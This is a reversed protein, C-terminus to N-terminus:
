APMIIVLGNKGRLTLALNFRNFNFYRKKYIQLIIRELDTNKINIVNTIQFSSKM